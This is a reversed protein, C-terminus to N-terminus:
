RDYIKKEERAHSPQTTVEIKGRASLCNIYLYYSFGTFDIHKPM